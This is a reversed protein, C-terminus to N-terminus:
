GAHCAQSSHIVGMIPSVNRCDGGSESDKGRSHTKHQIQGYIGGDKVLISRYGLSDLAAYDYV